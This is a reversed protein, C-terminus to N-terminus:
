RLFFARLLEAKQSPVPVASSELAALIKEGHESRAQSLVSDIALRRGDEADDRDTVLNYVSVASALAHLGLNLPSVEPM